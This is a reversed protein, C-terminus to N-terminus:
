SVVELHMTSTEKTNRASNSYYNNWLIFRYFVNYSFTKLNSDCSLIRNFIRITIKFCNNNLMARLMVHTYHWGQLLIMDIQYFGLCKKDSSFDPLCKTNQCIINLKYYVGKSAKYMWLLLRVSLFFHLRLNITLSARNVAPFAFIM